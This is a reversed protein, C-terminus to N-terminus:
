VTYHALPPLTLEQLSREQKLVLLRACNPSSALVLSEVSLESCTTTISGPHAYGGARDPVIAPAGVM